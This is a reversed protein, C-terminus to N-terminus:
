KRKRLNEKLVEAFGPARPADAESLWVKAEESDFEKLLTISGSTVGLLFCSDQIRILVLQENKGLSIRGFVSFSGNGGTRGRGFSGNAQLNGLWRTAWFALFLILVVLALMGLLSWANQQQM